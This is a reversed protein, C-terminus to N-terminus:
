QCVQQDKPWKGEFILRPILWPLPARPRPTPLIPLTMFDKNRNALIFNLIARQMVEHLYDPHNFPAEPAWCNDSLVNSALMDLLVELPKYAPDLYQDGMECRLRRDDNAQTLMQWLLGPIHTVPSTVAQAETAWCLLLWFASEADHHLAHREKGSSKHEGHHILYENTTKFRRLRQPM